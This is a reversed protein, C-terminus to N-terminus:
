RVLDTESTPQSVSGDLFLFIRKGDFVGEDPLLGNDVSPWVKKDATSIIATRRALDTLQFITPPQNPSRSAYGMELFPKGAEADTNGGWPRDKPSQGPPGNRRAYNATRINTQAAKSLAPCSLVDSLNRGTVDPLDFYPALYNFLHAQTTELAPKTYWPFIAWTAPGPLRGNNDNAYLNIAM